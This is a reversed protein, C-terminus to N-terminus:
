LGVIRYSEGGVAVMNKKNSLSWQYLQSKTQYAKSGLLPTPTLVKKKKKSKITM